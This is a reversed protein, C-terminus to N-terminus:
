QDEFALSRKQIPFHALISGFQFYKETGAFDSYVTVANKSARTGELRFVHESHVRTDYNLIEIKEHHTKAEHSQLSILVHVRYSHSTKPGSRGM